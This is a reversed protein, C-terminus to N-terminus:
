SDHYDVIELVQVADIERWIHAGGKKEKPWGGAPAIVLRRGGALDIGLQGAREGALEHCRGPLNRMEELTAAARLDSLRSMVKRACDRGYARRLEKESECVKQLKRSAFSVEM